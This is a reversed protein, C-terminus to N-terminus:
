FSARVGLAYRASGTAINLMQNAYRGRARIQEGTVNIGEIFVTMSHNIDYSASIDWQGYEEIITPETTSRDNQGFKQFFEDRWNYAIRAQFRDQEYFGIFNASDSVGSLAFTSDFNTPDFEADTDVFTANAIIGFGTDAIAYQGSIEIGDIKAEDLNAPRTMTYIVEKETDPNFVGELLEDAIASSIFNDVKKHFVSAALYDFENIYWELGLDINDAIYPELGPNGSSGSGKEDDNRLNGLTRSSKMKPLDPRTISRAAAFRLVLDDDLDYKISLNPLLIDYDADSAYAQAGTEIKTMIEGDGQSIFGTLTSEESTSVIDTQEYRLGAVLTFAQGMLEMDSTSELYVSTTKENIDYWNGQHLMELYDAPLGRHALWTASLSPDYQVFNAGGNIFPNSLNVMHYDQQLAAVDPYLEIVMTRPDGNSDRFKQDNPSATYSNKTKTQDTHMLGAKYTVAGGDNFSYDFRLQDIEDKLNTRRKTHQHVRYNEPLMESGNITPLAYDGVVNFEPNLGIVQIDAKNNNHKADPDSESVSSSMAFVANSNDNIDWELKLGFSDNTTKTAPKASFFDVGKNAFSASTVTGNADAAIWNKQTAAGAGFWIAAENETSDSEFQSFQYDLTAVLTDTPAYQLVASGNVRTRDAEKHGYISQIPAFYLSNEAQEGLKGQVKKWERM